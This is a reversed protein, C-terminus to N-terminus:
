KNGSPLLNQVHTYIFDHRNATSKIKIDPSILKKNMQLRIRKNNDVTKRNMKTQKVMYDPLWQIRRQENETWSLIHGDSKVPLAEGSSTSLLQDGSRLPCPYCTQANGLNWNWSINCHQMVQTHYENQKIAIYATASCTWSHKKCSPLVCNNTCNLLPYCIVGRYRYTHVEEM